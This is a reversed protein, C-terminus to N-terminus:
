EILARTMVIHGGPLTFANMVPIDYIRVQLPPIDPNGEALNGLMVAIANDGAPTHCAKAREVLSAEMQEGVRESWEDPLLVAIKQPAFSLALYILGALITLGGGIWLFLRVVRRPNVGGTLHPAVALLQQMFEDGRISLRAGPQSDHALRLPHGAHPPDIATLGSLNWTRNAIGVGSFALGQPQLTVEVKNDRATEGDFYIADIAM